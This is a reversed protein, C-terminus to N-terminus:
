TRQQLICAGVVSCLCGYSPLVDDVYLVFVIDERQTERFARWCCSFMSLLGVYKVVVHFVEMNHAAM